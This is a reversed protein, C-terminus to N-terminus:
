SMTVGFTPAPERAVLRESAARPNFHVMMSTLWGLAVAEPCGYHAALARIIDDEGPNVPIHSAVM